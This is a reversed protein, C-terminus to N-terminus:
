ALKDLEAQIEDFSRAGSDLSSDKSYISQLFQKYDISNKVTAKKGNGKSTMTKEIMEKFEAAEKGIAALIKKTEPRAMPGNELDDLGYYSFKYVDKQGDKSKTKERVPVRVNAIRDDKEGYFPSVEIARGNDFWVSKYSGDPQVTFLGQTEQSLESQDKCKSIIAEVNLNLAIRDEANLDQTSKAKYVKLPFFNGPVILTKRKARDHKWSSRVYQKQVGTSKDTKTAIVNVINVDGAANGMVERSEKITGAYNFNVYAVALDIPMTRVMLTTNSEDVKADNATGVKGLSVETGVPTGIIVGKLTPKADKWHLVKQTECEALSVRKNQAYAAKAKESAGAKLHPKGNADKIAEKVSQLKVVDDTSVIYGFLRGNLYNCRVIDGSLVLNENGTSLRSRIADIQIGDGSAKPPEKPADSFSNLPKAEGVGASALAEELGLNDLNLTSMREEEKHIIIHNTTHLRDGILAMTEFRESAGNWRYVFEGDSSYVNKAELVPIASVTAVWVAGDAVVAGMSHARESESMKEAVSVSVTDKMSVTVLSGLIAGREQLNALTIMYGREKVKCIKIADGM